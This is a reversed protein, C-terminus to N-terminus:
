VERLTLSTKLEDLNTAKKIIKFNKSWWEVINGREADWSLGDTIATASVSAWVEGGGGGDGAWLRNESTIETERYSLDVRDLLDTDVLFKVDIEVEVKLQSAEGWIPPLITLSAETSFFTNEMEYTQRGLRWSTNSNNVLVPGGFTVYSSETDEEAFKFRFNTYLKDRAERINKVSIVNPRPFLGGFLSFQSAETNPSRDVFSIGGTRTAYIVFGEAEAMKVMFDWVTLNALATTTNIQSYIVTTSQINWAGATIFNQFLLGGAGDTADRIKGVIEAATLSGTAIGGIEDARTETLPAIIARCSFLERNGPVDKQIDGDMIFVGLTPDDPYEAGEFVYGAEIKLLSRYRPLYGNWFSSAENENNFTGDINNFAIDIGSQVFHNFRVDDVSSQTEGWSEVYQTVDQWEPEYLGTTSLRRKIFARRFPTHESQRLIDALTIPIVAGVEANPQRTNLRFTNPQPAAM